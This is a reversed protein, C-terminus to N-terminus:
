ALVEGVRCSLGPLVEATERRDRLLRPNRATFLQVESGMERLDKATLM